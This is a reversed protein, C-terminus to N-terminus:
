RLYRWYVRLTEFLAKVFDGSRVKSGKVDRWELLPSEYIVAEARPLDTGRRAQILRAVIEVDFIWNTIFPAQFLAVQRPLRRFLKAGCQTDYVRIGLLFSVVTAFIRGLYHRVARREISRGLLQVRSGFVMEIGPKQDLLDCFSPIADLPAALDADWFGAYDPCSAFARLLGLRVAEAKGVNRPLGYVDFRDPHSRRLTELVQATQDTSGDNVFLFRVSHGQPIFDEFKGTDLRKAENYCPVVILASAM